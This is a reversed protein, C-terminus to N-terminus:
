RIERMLVYGGVGALAVGGVFQGVRMWTGTDTLVALGEGGGDPFDGTPPEDPPPTNSIYPEPDVATGDLILEFHLHIGTANGTQGM